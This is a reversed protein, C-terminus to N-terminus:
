SHVSGLKGAFLLLVKVKFKNFKNNWNNWTSMLGSSFTSKITLNQFPSLPLPFPSLFFVAGGILTLSEQKDSKM